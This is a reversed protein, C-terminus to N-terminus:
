SSKQSSWPFSRVCGVGARYPGQEAPSHVAGARPRPLAEIDGELTTEPPSECAAESGTELRRHEEVKRTKEAMAPPHATTRPAFPISPFLIYSQLLFRTKLSPHQPAALVQLKMPTLASGPTTTIGSSAPPLPLSPCRTSCNPQDWPASLPSGLPSSWM